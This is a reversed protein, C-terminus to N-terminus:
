HGAELHRDLRDVTAALQGALAKQEAIVDTLARDRKVERRERDEDRQAQEARFTEFQDLLGPRGKEGDVARLIRGLRLLPKAFIVAITILTGVASLVGIVIALWDPM